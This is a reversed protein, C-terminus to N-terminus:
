LSSPGRQPRGCDASRAGTGGLGPPMLDKQRITMLHDFILFAATMSLALLIFVMIAGVIGGSFIIGILGAPAESEGADMEQALLRSGDTALFLFLSIIVPYRLRTAWNMKFLKM